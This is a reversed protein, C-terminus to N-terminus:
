HPVSNGIHNLLCPNVTLFFDLWSALSRTHPFLCTPKMVLETLSLPAIQMAREKITKCETERMRQRESM